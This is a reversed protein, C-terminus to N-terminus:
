KPQIRILTDIMMQLNTRFLPISRKLSDVMVAWEASDITPDEGVASAIVRRLKDIRPSLREETFISDLFRRGQARFDNWVASRLLRLFKDKDIPSVTYGGPNESGPDYYCRINAYSSNIVNWNPVVNKGVPQNNTWFNPEPYIFVKDLDWPIIQFLGTADNHYWFYNHRTDGNYNSMIGDFNMIGRDVVIYNVLYQVDISPSVKQLFNSSDTGSATVADRFARFDGIDPNDEPDNNTVLAKRIAADTARADPWIEKYLNGDGAEPFHVKTFRGDIEETVCFLGWLSDNVFLRGYAVRPCVIGMDNFVSFGLKEHIKTPDASMSRFNLAKLGYFRRDANYRNFDLKMSFKACIDGNGFGYQPYRVDKKRKGNKICDWISQDGRFRVGISDISRGEVELRAPVFVPNVTYTNTVLKGYDLLTDLAEKSFYLRYERVTDENFVWYGIEPKLKILLSTYVTDAHVPYKKTQYGQRTFVLTDTVAKSKSFLRSTKGSVSSLAAHQTGWPVITLNSFRGYISEIRIICVSVPFNPLQIIGSSAKRNEALFLREGKLNYFGVTALDPTLKLYLRGFSGATVTVSETLSRVKGPFVATNDDITFEGNEDTAAASGSGVFMVSVGSLGKGTESDVVKGSYNKASVAVSLFLFVCVISNIFTKM